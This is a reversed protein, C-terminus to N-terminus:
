RGLRYDNLPVSCGNCKMISGRDPSSLTVGKFVWALGARRQEKNWAADTRCEILDQRLSNQNQRVQPLKKEKAQQGQQANQARPTFEQQLLNGFSPTRLERQVQSFGRFRSRM